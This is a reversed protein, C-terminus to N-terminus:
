VGLRVLGICGLVHESDVGALEWKCLVKSKNNKDHSMGQQYLLLPYHKAFPGWGM